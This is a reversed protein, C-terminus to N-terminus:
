AMKKAVADLIAEAVEEKSGSAETKIGDAAIITVSNTDYGFGAGAKLVDNVAIFDLSKAAIKKAGNELLDDTEAAFGVLIQGAKKIKGLEGAIDKNQAFNVTFSEKGERKIKKESVKAAKFDGVAAAKIIVDACASKEMCANYMEEATTIDIKEIQPICSLSSPGSILTVNAGRRWAEYALAYGMKGSSPNSVYRVPDIYEHTPGATVVVNKGEYDKKGCLARWVNEYIVEADPLRGKGEAGCALVGEDPDVVTYGLKKCAAIHGKTAPHELMNSNMAPFLVVPKRCALLLAGILTSSDGQAAIRLVNATCPAVVVADAWEALSIHPILRGVEASLFDDERWAKKGSLTGLVLPSVFEEAAKTLVTEVECDQKIFGRLIEPAKYAAIGGSIAFLIKKNKKLV